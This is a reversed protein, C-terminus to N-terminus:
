WLATVGPYTPITPDKTLITMDHKLATAVIIRDCPDRHLVPLMASRAGLEATVPIEEIGHLRLAEVIWQDPPLPLQLAGRQSKIALEFGTISSVFLNDPNEAIAQRAPESLAEQRDALWLLVHTDLLLM